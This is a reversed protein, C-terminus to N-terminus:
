KQSFPVFVTVSQVTFNGCADTVQYTLTYTRGEGNVASREARLMFNFDDIIVIDDPTDGDGLGDDPENSTVSVLTVTPNPDFNDSVTFEVTVDVYKHNAPWLMDPTATLSDFVPAIEDCVDLGVIVPDHDSSRYPDPAYIADQADAKYKMTYDILDPEDANIHWITVGTIEEALDDNALAHDLYGLQGDFVYSYAFEDLYYDVMDIFALKENGEILADIPDEKDYSNLDGIILFDGDGSGTPDTGLWDVLAEAAMTRTLNCNGAIPDDDGIGCSSGKSKLHNVVATFIGGNENDMFTQALAPRSKDTEYGLPNVFAQSDLIAFDGVPTVTAPKYIFAQAIEDTGYVGTYIYAYVEAGLLDNLGDVLNAVATGNNEIEILGVVDADIAALAAFIKDRQRIFEEETEAGRSGLTTFYNLVNFSAVKLDSGVPDPSATRPNTKAYDAGTTPEIIYEGFSYYVVGTVNTLTDGGRFLNNLDFISGNPHIAPDSNYSSRGDDLIISDLANDALLQAAEPSEPDYVASPQYLRESSLVIEGYYDFNYYESINLGQPFTVLMGEYPELNTSDLPLSLATATTLSQNEESIVTVGSYSTIETLGYYESVKGEVRVKDGIKVDVSQPYYGDYVFIGESTLPNADADTDEEQIFFGNFDGNTGADGDQFDGVVIGEVIVTQGVYPSVDGSGQVQHIKKEPNEQFTIEDLRWTAASGSTTGSSVYQFAFYVRDGSIGSLDVIGSDEWQDSAEASFTIGTLETWTATTPDSSGDYDTSYFVHVQPYDIDSYKTYSRFSLIEDIQADMDLPPTILWENAPASDGYGNAEINSYQSNCAWTHATDSDLSIIEWNNLTCNDFNEELPLPQSAIVTGFSQGTNVSGFTNAIPGSWSFDAYTKGTGILQLSYGVPTTYPEEVGIDTSTMGDAPGGVATITGEYSLFQIVNSSSDVLAMGDPSGNQLGAYSESHTGYGNDQDPIIGSLDITGYVVGGNGNYLVLSWGTLDTGATGAIEIAEGTDTSTNDYHIENIWMVSGGFSQGDNVADFSSAAPGTWTFDDYTTGTGALQLSYGVSTDYPEEVGIDTSTIGDAPGGVATFAGEYSLFQVLTNGNVLAIGDPSGNQLGPALVSTTGYGNDQDPIIGSLDISGYVVGGNGNYLVLSWGTLDTGAPGAVEIAEGTDTSTNDYHIENIFVAPAEAKAPAISFLGAMLTIAFLIGLFQYTRKKHM